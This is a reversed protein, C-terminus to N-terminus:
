FANSDLHDDSKVYFETRLDVIKNHLEIIHDEQESTILYLRNITIQVKYMIWAMFMITCILIFFGSSMVLTLIEM